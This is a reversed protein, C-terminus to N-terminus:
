RGGGQSQIKRLLEENWIVPNPEIWFEEHCFHYIRGEPDNPVESFFVTVVPESGLLVAVALSKRDIGVTFERYGEFHLRDKLREAFDELTKYRGTLEMLARDIVRKVM